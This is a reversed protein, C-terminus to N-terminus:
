GTTVTVNTLTTLSSQRFRSNTIHCIPTGTFGESAAFQWDGNESLALPHIIGFNVGAYRSQMVDIVSQNSESQIRSISGNCRLRDIRSAWLM